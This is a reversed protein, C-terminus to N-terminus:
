SYNWLNLVNTEEDATDRRGVKEIRGEVEVRKGVEVRKSKTSRKNAKNINRLIKKKIM